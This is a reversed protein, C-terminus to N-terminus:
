PNAAQRLLAKQAGTVERLFQGIDKLCDESFLCAENPMFVYQRWANHWCVTGLKGGHQTSACVWRRTKRSPAKESEVFIVYRFRCQVNDFPDTGM